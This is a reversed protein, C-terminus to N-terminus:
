PEETRETEVVRADDYTFVLRRALIDHAVTELTTTRAFAHARMVALADSPSIRLQATVMGTAQHIQARTSWDLSDLEGLLALGVADALFQADDLSRALRGAAFLSLVGVVRGAVRMPVAYAVGPGGVTRVMHSFLPFAEDVPGDQDVQTVVVRNEALAARGPGEGLTEELSDIQTSVGDSTSVTLRAEPTASLTLAGSQAGLIEVCARCLRSPMAMGADIGALTRALLGMLEPASM